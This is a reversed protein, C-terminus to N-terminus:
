GSPVTCICCVSINVSNVSCSQGIYFHFYFYRESGGEIGVSGDLFVMDSHGDVHQTSSRSDTGGELCAAAFATNVASLLQEDAAQNAKKIYGSYIPIAIGALIGLIAIVVILEVLTFGERDAAKKAFKYM